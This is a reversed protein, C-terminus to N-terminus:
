RIAFKVDGPIVQDSRIAVYRRETPTRLELVTVATRSQRQQRGTLGTVVLEDASTLRFPGTLEALPRYTQKVGLARREADHLLKMGHWSIQADTRTVGFTVDPSPRRM